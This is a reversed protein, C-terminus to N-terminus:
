ARIDLLHDSSKSQNEDKTMEHSDKHKKQEDQPHRKQSDRDPHIAENEELKRVEQMADSKQQFDQMNALNAIDGRHQLYSQTNSGIQANQNIFTLNGIPSIAM